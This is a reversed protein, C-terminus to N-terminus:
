PSAAAAALRRHRFAIGGAADATGFAGAVVGSCCLQAADKPGHMQFVQVAVHTTYGSICELATAVIEYM